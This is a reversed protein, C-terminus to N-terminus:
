GIRYHVSSLYITLLATLAYQFISLGVIIV